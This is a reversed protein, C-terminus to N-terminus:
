NRLKNLIDSFDDPLEARFEMKEGTAPHTIILRYAHLMQRSISLKKDVNGYKKDGAVPYGMYSFHVRIQHTRGTEIKVEVLTYNKFEEKIKFRSVAKKSHRKRVAMKKRSSPDRGIPADIKGKEYPINGKLLALYYKETERKKFQEVLNKHSHDNKAVILVGSTDMDLRHVIGPRKVGNIGSLDDTYAMLANVITDNRHGPAPHVVIGPKKNLVLIDKDEYIVNLDMEVAKIDAKKIDSIEIKILQNEKIEYSKHIKNGDVTISGNEILKQIYSRSKGTLKRALFKDIRQESDEAKVKITKEEM